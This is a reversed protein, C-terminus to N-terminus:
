SRISISHGIQKRCSKPFFNGVSTMRKQSALPFCGAPMAGVPRSLFSRRNEPLGSMAAKCPSSCRSGLSGRSRSIWTDTTMALSTTTGACCRRGSISTFSMTIWRRVCGQRCGTACNRLRNTVSRASSRIPAIGSPATMISMSIARLALSGNM